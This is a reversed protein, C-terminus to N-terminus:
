QKEHTELCSDILFLPPTQDVRVLFNVINSDNASFYDYTSNVEIKKFIKIYILLKALTTLTSHFLIGPLSSTMLIM